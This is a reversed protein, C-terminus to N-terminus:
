FYQFGLINWFYYFWVMFLGTLAFLSYFIKNLVSAEKTKWLKIAKLLVPIALFSAIIPFLLIIPFYWPITHAFNNMGHFVFALAMLIVFAINSISMWFAIKRVNQLAPTSTRKRIKRYISVFIVVLFLIFSCALFPLYFDIFDYFSGKSFTGAPNKAFHMNRVNGADDETFILYNRWKIHHFIHKGIEVFEDNNILLTNRDTARVNTTVGSLFQNIKEVQTFNSRWNFYQGEYQWARKHFDEPADATSIQVYSTDPFYHYYFDNIFISEINSSNTGTASIFIGLDNKVDLMLDTHFYFTTGGHGYLRVGSFEQQCFGFAMGPYDKHPGFQWQRMFEATEPKLLQANKYSGNGLHMLMFNAMDRATSSMGGAPTYNTLLEFDQPVLNGGENKYTVTFNEKLTDPLPQYFTSNHMQLPKFIYKAIYDEYRLGSVNEIIVGLLAIGYNSYSSHSGVTSVRAPMYKEVAEKFPIIKDKSKVTSHGLTAEEFGASHTALSRITIPKEYTDPIKFDKLYTNVDADLDLKGQEVLQMIATYTFAKSISGIRFLSKEPSVKTNKEINEPGYGKSFLLKGDKVISVTVSTPVLQVADSKEKIYNDIYAELDKFPISDNQAFCFNSTFISLAVLFLTLGIKSLPSNKKLLNRSLIM